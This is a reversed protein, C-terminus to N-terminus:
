SALLSFLLSEGEREDFIFVVFVFVFIVRMHGNTKELHVMGM